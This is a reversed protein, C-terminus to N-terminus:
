SNLLLFLLKIQRYNHLHVADRKRLNLSFPIPM